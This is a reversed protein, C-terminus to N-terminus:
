WVFLISDDPKAGLISRLCRLLKADYLTTVVRKLLCPAMGVSSLAEPSAISAKAAARKKANKAASKSQGPADTIFTAGPPGSPQKASKSQGSAAAGPPRRWSPKRRLSAMMSRALGFAGGVAPPASKSKTRGNAGAGGDQGPVAWLTYGRTFHRALLHLNGFVERPSVPAAAAAAHTSTSTSTANWGRGNANWGGGYGYAHGYGGTWTNNSTVGWGSVNSVHTRSCGGGHIRHM